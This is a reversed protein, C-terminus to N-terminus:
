SRVERITRRRGSSTRRRREQKQRQQSRRQVPWRWPTQTTTMTSAAPNPKGCKEWKEYQLYPRQLLRDWEPSVGLPPPYRQALAFLTALVVLLFMGRRGGVMSTGKQWVVLSSQQHFITGVALVSM